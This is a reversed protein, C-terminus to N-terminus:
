GEEHVKVSLQERIGIELDTGVLYFAGKELEMLVHTLIPLTTKRATISQILSLGKLFEKKEIEFNWPQGRQINNNINVLIDIVTIM